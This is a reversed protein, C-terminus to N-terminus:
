EARMTIMPDVRTGRVAPIWSALWAAGGLVLVAGALSVPDTPEIGYLLARVVRGGSVVGVVGILLGIAVIGLSQAVVM